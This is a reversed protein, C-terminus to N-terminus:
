GFIWLAFATIVLSFLFGSAFILFNSYGSKKKKILPATHENEKVIRRAEEIIDPEAQGDKGEKLIFYAEEFLDSGTNKMFIVKKQYGRM